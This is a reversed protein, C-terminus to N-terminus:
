PLSPLIPHNVVSGINAGTWSIVMTQLFATTALDALDEVKAWPHDSVYVIDNPELRFGREKGALIDKVSVIFRKPSELSGRVVLVRAQWAADTFGGARTIAAVISDNDGYGQLGPQKVSGLVYIENAVASPFFLFDGPELLFNQSLDGQFLKQFDVPMRQHARVLFSRGLDALEVDQYQFVGNQLGHAQAVGELITMPRNLTFMGNQTVKGMIVFKKSNWQQPIVSVRPYRHCRSLELDLQTRTQDVTLGSVPLDQVELYTIKGDPGVVIGDRNLDNSGFMTIDLIDGPGLVLSQQWRARATPNAGSLTMPANPKPATTIVTNTQGLLSTTAQSTIPPPDALAATAWALTLLATIQRQM